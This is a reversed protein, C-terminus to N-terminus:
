AEGLTTRESLMQRHLAAVIAGKEILLITSKTASSRSARDAISGRDSREARAKEHIDSRARLAKLSECSVREAWSTAWSIGCSIARTTAAMGHLILNMAIGLLPSRREM